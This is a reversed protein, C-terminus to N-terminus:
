QGTTPVPARRVGDAGPAPLDGTDPRPMANSRRCWRCRIDPVVILKKRHQVLADIYKRGSCTRPCSQTSPINGADAEGRAKIRKRQEARSRGPPRGQRFGASRCRASQALRRVRQHSRIACTGDGSWWQDAWAWRSLTKQVATFSGRGTLITSPTTIKRAIERTVFTPRQLHTQVNSTRRRFDYDRYVPGYANPRLSYSSRIRHETGRRVQRQHVSQKGVRRRETTEYLRHRRLLQILNNTHTLHRRKAMPTRPLGGGSRSLRCPAASITISRSGGVDTLVCATAAIAVAHGNVPCCFPSTSRGHRM